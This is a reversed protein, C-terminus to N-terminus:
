MLGNGNTTTDYNPLSRDANKRLHDLLLHRDDTIHAPHSWLAAILGSAYAAAFSTGYYEKGASSTGVYETPKPAGKPKEGGPLVFVNQHSKGEQDVTARNSFQSLGKAKNVSEIALVNEYRAPFSLETSSENGAAAIILPGDADKDLERVMNEFVASRSNRSERGCYPCTGGELGFALSINAIKANSQVALAALTDWESARGHADAVKYIIFESTPCLDRIIETVATGPGFDDAADHRNAWDVFNLQSVVNAASAPDLGTDLVLVRKAAPTSSSTTKATFGCLKKYDDHTPTFTFGIGPSPPVQRVSLMLHPTVQLHYNSWRIFDEDLNLRHSFLEVFLAHKYYFQLYGIKYSEDGPPVGLRYFEFPTTRMPVEAQQLRQGLSEIVRVHDIKQELIQNILSRAASDEKHFSVLLEGAITDCM